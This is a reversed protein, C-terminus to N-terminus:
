CQVCPPCPAKPLLSFLHFEAPFSLLFIETHPQDWFPLASPSQAPLDFCSSDMTSSVRSKSTKSSCFPIFCKCELTGAWTSPEVFEQESPKLTNRPLSNTLRTSASVSQWLWSYSLMSTDFDKTYCTNPKHLIKSLKGRKQKRHLDKKNSTTVYNWPFLTVGRKREGIDQQARSNHQTLIHSSQFEFLFLLCELSQHHFVKNLCFFSSVPSHFILSGTHPALLTVM